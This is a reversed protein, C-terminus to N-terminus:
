ANLNVCALRLARAGRSSTVVTPLPQRMCPFASLLSISTMGVLAVSSRGHKPTVRVVTAMRAAALAPLPQNPACCGVNHQAAGLAYGKVRISGRVEARRPRVPMHVHVSLKKPRRSINGNESPQALSAMIRTFGHRYSTIAHTGASCCVAMYNTNAKSNMQSTQRYHTTTTTTTTRVSYVRRIVTAPLWRKLTMRM